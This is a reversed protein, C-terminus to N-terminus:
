ALVVLATTSRPSRLAARARAAAGCTVSCSGWSSWLEMECDIPCPGENCTISDDANGECEKGGHCKHEGNPCANPAYTRTRSRQGEACTVSCSGWNSWAQWACDIPCPDTNCAVALELEDNCTGGGM